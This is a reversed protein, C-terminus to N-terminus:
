SRAQRNDPLSKNTKHLAVLAQQPTRTMIIDAYGQLYHGWAQNIAAWGLRQWEQM